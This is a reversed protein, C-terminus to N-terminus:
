EPPKSEFIGNIANDFDLDIGRYALPSVGHVAQRHLIKCRPMSQKIVSVGSKDFTLCDVSLHELELNKLDLLAIEEINCYNLELKELSSITTIAALAQRSIATGNLRLERLRELKGLEELSRDSIKTRSLDLNTLHRLRSIASLSDSTLDTDSLRLDTLGVVQAIGLFCSDSIKTGSLNLIRLNKLEGILVSSRCDIEVKSGGFDLEELTDIKAIFPILNPKAHRIRISRVDNLDAIEDLLTAEIEEGLLNLEIPGDFEFLTSVSSAQDVSISYARSRPFFFGSLSPNDTATIFISQNRLEIKLCEFRLRIGVAFALFASITLLGFVLRLKFKLKTM